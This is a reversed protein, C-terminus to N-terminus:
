RNKWNLFFKEYGNDITYFTCFIPYNSNDPMNVITEAIKIGDINDINM